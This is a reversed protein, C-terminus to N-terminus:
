KMARLAVGLAVSFTPGVEKLVEDIFAPYEVKSFPTAQSVPRALSAEIFASLGILSSGGGTLLIKEVHSGEEAEYRELRMQIERMIQEIVSLELDRVQEDADPGIGVRRKLEEAEDFTQVATGVLAQTVDHGGKQVRHTERMIGMEAIYMKTSSSGLDLLLVSADSEHLSSRVAGFAEIESMGVAIGASQILKKYRKLSENHTAAMLVDIHDITALDAHPMDPLMFWDLTIESMAIPIYKRAEVPVMSQLQNPDRTPFRAVVMFSSTYPVAFSSVHATVSAERLIDALAEAQKTPDIQRVASGIPAGAYPGLQLEGYTTLQAGREGRVLQVVKLSSSGFDIGVVGDEFSSSSGKDFLKGLQKIQFAMVCLFEVM